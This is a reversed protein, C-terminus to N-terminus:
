QQELDMETQDGSKPFARALHEKFKRWTPSIKMLTNTGTIIEQLKSNGINPTLWQHHKYKRTGKETPPNKIELEELVGPPLREYIIDKTIKGIYQPRNSSDKKWEIGRLRFLNEYWEDPFRKQWKMLEKNIYAELIKELALRDRIYQYGTAEDVLAIIGIHAFGHVLIEAKKATILQSKSLAGKERAKFWIDCIKPLLAADIGWAISGTKTKYTIPNLLSEYTEKEIFPELNKASLYEPLLAGKKASRKKVWYAGSGKRGLAKAVSRERLVRRGDKLVACPISKDGINIKGTHTAILIKVGM